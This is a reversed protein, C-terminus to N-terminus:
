ELDAMGELAKKRSTLRYDFAAKINLRKVRIHEPLPPFPAAMSIARVAERDLIEYGSARTVGVHMMRGGPDLSFVAMLNGEVLNERAEPPYAWHRMIREKVARAYSVYQKDETDLSITHEEELTPTEERQRPPALNTEEYYRELDEVPPRVLTVRYTRLEEQVDILPFAGQFALLLVLHVMFSIILTVRMIVSM